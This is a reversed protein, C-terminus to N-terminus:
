SYILRSVAFDTWSTIKHAKFDSYINIYIMQYDNYRTHVDAQTATWVATSTDEETYKTLENLDM